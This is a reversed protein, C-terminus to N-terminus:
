DAFPYSKQAIRVAEESFDTGSIPSLHFTNRLTPLAEGEACSIDCVGYKKRNVEYIFWKPMLNVALEGFFRTQEKGMNQDWHGSQFRGEWYEKSNIESM